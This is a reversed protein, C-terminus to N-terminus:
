PPFWSGRVWSNLRTDKECVKKEDSISTDYPSRKVKLKREMSKSDSYKEFELKQLCSTLYLINRKLTSLREILARTKRMDIQSSPLKLSGLRSAVYLGQDVLQVNMIQGEVGALQMCYGAISKKERSKLGPYRYFQDIVTKGECLVKVHDSFFKDDHNYRAFDVCAFNTKTCIKLDVKDGTILGNVQQSEKKSNSSYKSVSE